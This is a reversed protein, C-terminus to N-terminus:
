DGGMNRLWRVRKKKPDISAIEPVDISWREAELPIMELPIMELPIMELPIVASPHDNESVIEITVKLVGHIAEKQIIAGSLRRRRQGFSFYAPFSSM